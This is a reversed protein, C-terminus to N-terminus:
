VFCLVLISSGRISVSDFALGKVIACLSGDIFCGNLELIDCCVCTLM